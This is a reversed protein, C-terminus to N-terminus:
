KRRARSILALVVYTLGGFLVLYVPITLPMYSRGWVCAESSPARCKVWLEVHPAALGVGLAVIARVLRRRPANM